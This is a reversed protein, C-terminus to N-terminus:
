LKIRFIFEPAVRELLNSHPAEVGKVWSLAKLKDELVIVASRAPAQGKIRLERNSGTGAVESVVVGGPLSQLVDPLRTSWTIRDTQVKVMEALLANRELISRTESRYEIIAEDLVEQASPYAVRAAVRLGMGAGVGAVTLGLVALLVSYSFRRLKGVFYQRRLQRRRRLPLLNIEKSM